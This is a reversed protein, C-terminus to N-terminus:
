APSAIPPPRPAFPRALGPPHWTFAARPPLGAASRRDARAALTALAFAFALASALPLLPIGVTTAGVVAPLAPPTVGVGIGVHLIVVVLGLVLALLDRRAVFRRRVVAVTAVVAVIGVVWRLLVEPSFIADTAIRRWLLAAHFLGLWAAALALAWRLPRKLRGGLAEPRAGSASRM